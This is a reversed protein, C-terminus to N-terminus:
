LSIIGVVDILKNGDYYLVTEWHSSTDKAVVSWGDSDIYCHAPVGTGNAVYMPEPCIFTGPVLNVSTGSAVMNTLYPEDHLKYGIGHGSLETVMDFGFSEGIDEIIRSLQVTNIEGRLELMEKIAFAPAIVIPNLKDKSDLRGCLITIASDFYMVRGSPAKGSIGGDITVIDGKKIVEKISSFLGHAVCNNVSICLPKEFYEGLANQQSSFPFGINKLPIYTRTLRIFESVIDAKSIQEEEEAIIDAIAHIAKGFTPAIEKYWEIDKEDIKIQM